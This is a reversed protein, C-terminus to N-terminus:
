SGLVPWEGSDIDGGSGYIHQYAIKGWVPRIEDGGLFVPITVSTCIAM